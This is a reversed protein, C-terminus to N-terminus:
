SRPIEVQLSTGEPLEPKGDAQQPRPV